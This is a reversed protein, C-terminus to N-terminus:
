GKMYYEPSVISFEADPSFQKLKEVIAKVNRGQVTVEKTEVDREYPEKLGRMGMSALNIARYEQETPTFKIHKVPQARKWHPIRTVRVSKANTTSGYNSM